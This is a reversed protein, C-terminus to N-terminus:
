SENTPLHVVTRDNTREVSLVPLQATTGNTYTVVSRAEGDVSEFAPVDFDAAAPAPSREAVADVLSDAYWPFSEVAFADPLEEDALRDAEIEDTIM